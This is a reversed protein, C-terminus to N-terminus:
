LGMAIELNLEALLYANKATGYAVEATAALVSATLVDQTTATGFTNQTKTLTFQSEALDASQKALDAKQAQLQVTEYDDRIDSAITAKMQGAQLTYLAAQSNSTQQQYLANGADLIPMSVKAGLSLAEAMVSPTTWSVAVGAGGTLSIVPQAQSGALAADITASKASLAYQVLETRKSLGIRIADEASGAPLVPAPIDAVTFRDGAPKGVLVALRENAMRLTKEAFAVDIDASRANIQATKLDIASAQKIAYVAQIQALLNEQKSAVQKKIELDSQAALMTIYYQKVKAIAASTGQIAQSEKTQLALDSKKLTASFQGGPYGDWVTQSATIGLLSSQSNPLATGPPLTQAVNVTVKTLPGSLALSGQASQSTGQTSSSTTSGTAAIAKSILAQEAVTTDASPSSGLSWAGSANLTVGQKAIDLARQLRATDLTKSVLAFDSGSSHAQELIQALTIVPLAPAAPNKDPQTQDAIPPPVPVKDTTAPALDEAGIPLVFSFSVIAILLAIKKKMVAGNIHEGIIISL